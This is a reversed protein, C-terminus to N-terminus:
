RRGRHRRRREHDREPDHGEADPEPEPEHEVPAGCAPCKEEPPEAFGCHCKPCQYYTEPLPVDANSLEDETMAVMRRFDAETAGNAIYLRVLHRLERLRVLEANLAGLAQWGDELWPERPRRGRAMEDSEELIQLALAVRAAHEQSARAPEIPIRM